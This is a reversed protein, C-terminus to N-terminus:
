LDRIHCRVRRVLYPDVLHILGFMEEYFCAVNIDKVCIRGRVRRVLHPDVLHILGFM